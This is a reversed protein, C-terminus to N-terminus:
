LKNLLGAVADGTQGVVNKDIAAYPEVNVRTALQARLVGLFRPAAVLAKIDVRGSRAFLTARMSHLPASEPSRALAEDFFRRGFIEGRASKDRRGLRRPKGEAQVM